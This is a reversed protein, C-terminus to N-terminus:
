GIFSLGHKSLFPEKSLHVAEYVDDCDGDGFCCPLLLFPKSQRFIPANSGSDGIKQDASVRRM